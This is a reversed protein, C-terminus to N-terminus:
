FFLDVEEQMFFELGVGGKGEVEEEGDELEIVHLPGDFLGGFEADRADRGDDGAAGFLVEGLGGCFTGFAPATDGKFGALLGAAGVDGFDGVGAREFWSEFM